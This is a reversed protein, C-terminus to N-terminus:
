KIILAENTEIRVFPIEDGNKVLKKVADKRIEPMSYKLLDDNTEQAWAIFEIENDIVLSGATNRLSISAKPTDIKSRGIDHMSTKLYTVLSNVQNEKSKRRKEIAQKEAKLAEAEAKIEKIAVAINEAKNDFDGEIAELTDYWAQLLTEKYRVPDDIINGNIDIPEGDANTDPQWSDIDDFTDFLRAFDSKLEYLKM